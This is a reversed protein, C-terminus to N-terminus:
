DTWVCVNWVGMLVCEMCGCVSVEYLIWVSYNCKMMLSLCACMSWGDVYVCMRGGMREGKASMRDILVRLGGM